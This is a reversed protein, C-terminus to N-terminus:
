SDTIEKLKGLVKRARTAERGSAEAKAALENAKETLTRAKADQSDAVASLNEQAKILGAIAGDVTNPSFLNM